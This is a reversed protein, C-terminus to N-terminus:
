SRSASVAAWRILFNRAKHPFLLNMVTNTLAGCRDRGQTVHRWNKHDIKINDEWRRRSRGLPRKGENEWVFIKYANRMEGMCTVHGALKMRRIITARVSGTFCAAALNINLLETMLQGWQCTSHHIQLICTVNVYMTRHVEDVQRSSFWIEALCELANMM